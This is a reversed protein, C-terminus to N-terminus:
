VNQLEQVFNIDKLQVTERGAHLASLNASLLIKMLYNEASEQLGVLASDKFRVPYTVTAPIQGAVAPEVHDVIPLSRAIKKVLRNFPIRPIILSTSKQYKRIERLAVTGPHFRRVVTSKPLTKAEVLSRKYGGGSKKDTTAARKASSSSSSPPNKRKKNTSTTDEPKEVDAVKQDKRAM